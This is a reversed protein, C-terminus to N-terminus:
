VHGGSPGKPGHARPPCTQNKLKSFDIARLIERGMTERIYDLGSDPLGALGQRTAGANGSLSLMLMLM